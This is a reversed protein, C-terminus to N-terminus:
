IKKCDSRLRDQKLIRYCEQFGMEVTYHGEWGLRKLKSNNLICNQPKSFGQAEIDSPVDFIVKTGAIDACIQAVEAISKIAYENSVNYSEEVEGRFLIALIGTVADIVYTYTRHSIGKSKMVIDKGELANHLFQAHAKSDNEAMTPGYISALRAVNVKVGYERVYCRSLLEVSRKSEPYCARFANFDIVGADKEVYEDNGTNGYVEFTSLISIKCNTHKRGYELINYSGILNTTMTEVPYTAYSIPDTNSAGHVIYDLQLEDSLPNCVDQELIHFYESNYYTKFRKEIKARSRGVAYIHNHKGGENALMLLDIMCSGILGSAGTILFAKGDVEVAELVKQLATKYITNTIM